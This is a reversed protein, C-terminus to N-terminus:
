KLVEEISNKIQMYLDKRQQTLTKKEFIIAAYKKSFDIWPWTGSFGPASIINPSGNGNEEQIWCGMGYTFGALLEPSSRKKADPFQNRLIESIANESLVKKNNFVGKNMIMQMFNIYDFASCTAGGSPNTAGNENYFTSAKMGLPRFLKEQAIRDFTKKTIVELIRGAINLGVSSYSFHTGPNDEILRKAAYFNVEEELSEFKNKQAIKLIGNADGEVGTTETLCDRINIFGKMYKEFIPLYKTVQDDLKIKGEDVFIMVLAVTLWKSSNGIPAPMKFNFDESQKLFINKGAKNVVVVYEKGFTKENKTLIANLQSFDDQAKISQLILMFILALSCKRCTKFLFYSMNVEKKLHINM